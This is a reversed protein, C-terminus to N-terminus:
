NRKEEKGEDNFISLEEGPRKKKRIKLYINKQLTPQEEEEIYPQQLRVIKKIESSFASCWLLFHIMEREAGCMFCTTKEGLGKGIM